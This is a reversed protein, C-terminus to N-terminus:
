PRETDAVGRRQSGAHDSETVVAHLAGDALRVRLRDGPSPTGASRLVPADVADGHQVIAYGRALTAAPGLATLSATLHRLDAA